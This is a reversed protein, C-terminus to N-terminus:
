GRRAPMQRRHCAGWEGEPDFQRTLHRAARSAGSSSHQRPDSLDLRRLFAMSTDVVGRGHLRTGSRVRPKSGSSSGSVTDTDLRYFSQGNSSCRSCTRTWSMFGHPQSSTEGSRLQVHPGRDAGTSVRYRIVPQQPLVPRSRQPWYVGRDRQPRHRPASSGTVATSDPREMTSIMRSEANWVSIALVRAQDPNAGSPPVASVRRILTGFQDRVARRPKALATMPRGAQGARGGPV